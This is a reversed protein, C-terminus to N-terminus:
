FHMFSVSGRAGTLEPKKGYFRSRWTQHMQVDQMLQTISSILQVVETMM